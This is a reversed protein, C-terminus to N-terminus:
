KKGVTAPNAAAPLQSFHVVPYKESAARMMPPGQSPVHIASAAMTPLTASSLLVMRVVVRMGKAM